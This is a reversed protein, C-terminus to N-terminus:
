QTRRSKYFCATAGGVNEFGRRGWEESLFYFFYFLGGTVKLVPQVSKIGKGAVIAWWLWFIAWHVEWVRRKWVNRVCSEREWGQGRSNRLDLIGSAPLWPATTFSVPLLSNTNRRKEQRGNILVMHKLPSLSVHCQSPSFLFFPRIIHSPSVSLPSFCIFLFFLFFAKFYTWKPTTNTSLHTLLIIYINRYVIFIIFYDYFYISSIPTKRGNWKGGM